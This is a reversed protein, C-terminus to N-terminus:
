IQHSGLMSKSSSLFNETYTKANEIAEELLEGSALRAAIGASLVCGSGHKPSCDPNVPYFSRVIRGKEYLQDRGPREADHGGKLLVYCYKSLAAAADYPNSLGSLEIAEMTNPTVLLIGSLIDSEWAKHFGSLFNQGTSSRIVPDWVISIGASIRNIRSIIDALLQSSEIIGIKCARIPYHLLITELQRLIFDTDEWKLDAFHKETQITNSTIVATGYVGASEFSKIDALIGAGASADFGAITLCFAKNM